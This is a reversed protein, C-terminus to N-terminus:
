LPPSPQGGSDTQLVERIKRSLEGITFPKQIFGNCGKKLIEVAQGNLSYGSSLIVKVRPNIKKLNAYTEGGGLSPMVMDLIILDTRGKNDQYFAIAEEGSRATFVTYGLKKLLAEGVKLVAEQDDVLLISELGTVVKETGDKKEIYTKDSAPLYITFTTGRGKESYVNITGGHNKIIGYASALGLGTGRGMEKTTFFPEFIRQKTPEDMGVGTDTIAVKVYRGPDLAYLGAYSDDLVINRTELYLDGGSPMAQWANVYFNLVAQDIQGRDVEVPWLNEEFKLFINIEKKTRGFM